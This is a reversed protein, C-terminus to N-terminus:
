REKGTCLTLPGRRMINQAKKQLLRYFDISSTDISKTEHLEYRGEAMLDLRIAFHMIIHTGTKGAHIKPLDSEKVNCIFAGGDTKLQVAVMQSHVVASEIM